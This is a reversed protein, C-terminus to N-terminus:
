ILHAQADFHWVSVDGTTTNQWMVGAGSGLGDLHGAMVANWGTTSGYGVTQSIQGNTGNMLWAETTGGADRWLVDDTGDGNFDGQAIVSWGAMNVLTQTGQRTG